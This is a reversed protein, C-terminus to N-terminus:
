QRRLVSAIDLILFQKAQYERSLKSAHWRQKLQEQLSRREAASLRNFKVEGVIVQKSLEAGSGEASAPAVIDFEASQEWARSSGPYLSRCYDEFVSAAHDRLLKKKEDVTYHQWRTQHLSHVQYWFRMAPDIIKYLTHKAARSSTGYSLERVLVHAETMLQLVRSLNQQKTQLRAAIESPRSAGRGIVELISHPYLDDLKEDKLVRRPESQMYPSLDFYLDEASAIPTHPSQLLEWYKPVGGVLSYLIFTDEEQGDLQMAKCFEHYGMPAINIIRSMRGYLPANDDLFVDHMMRRSSGALIVFLHEKKSSDIWRQMRSPLSPDSMVLYPFEDICLTLPAPTREILEFFQEWNKPQITTAAPSGPYFLDMSLQELQVATAGEIAQSYLGSVSHIWHQLLRTKGIRRRGTIAVFGKSREHLKSLLALEQSRNIFKLTNM